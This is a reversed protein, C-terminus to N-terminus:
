RAEFSVIDGESATVGPPVTAMSGDPQVDTVRVTGLEKKSCWVVVGARNRIETVGYLVGERGESLGSSTGMDIVIGEPSVAQVRAELRFLGNLRSMVRDLAKRTAQGIMSADFESSGLKLAAGLAKKLDGALLVAGTKDHRAEANDSFVLRGNKLDIVEVSLRVYATVKTHMFGGALKGLTGLGTDRQFHGFDMVKGRLIYDAGQFGGKAQITSVDFFGDQALNLEDKMAKLEEREVVLVKGAQMLRQKLMQALGSGIPYSSDFGSPNAFPLVAIRPRAEVRAGVVLFIGVMLLVMRAIRRCSRM